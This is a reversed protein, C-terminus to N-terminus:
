DNIIELKSDKTIPTNLDVLEDNVKAALAAKFLGEGILKALEGPTIGDKHEEVSGDPFTIKM